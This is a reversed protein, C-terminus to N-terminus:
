DHGGGRRRDFVQLALERVRLELVLRQLGRVIADLSALLLHLAGNLRRGSSRRFLNGSTSQIRGIPKM